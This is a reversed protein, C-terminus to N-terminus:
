PQRIIEEQEKFTVFTQLGEAKKIKRSLAEAEGRTSFEGIWLKYLVGERKSESTTIHMKYGKKGLKDKLTDAESANKFAGVQVTYIIRAQKQSRQTDRIAEGESGTAQLGADSPNTPSQSQVQQQSQAGSSSAEKEMPNAQLQRIEVNEKATNRGVFYGLIFAISSPILIAIIILGKGIIFPSSKGKFDTRKM